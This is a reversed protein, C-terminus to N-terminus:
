YQHCGVNFCGQGALSESLFLRSTYSGHIDTHCDNCPVGSWQTGHMSNLNHRPVTHCQSCLQYHPPDYPQLLLRPHGSGHAAHCSLCGGEQTSFDLTAEHEYPFPGAMEGHCKFCMNTGNLSLERATVDLTLHCESCKVIGDNVPHRSPSAFQGEVKPHCSLCLKVEDQKLLSAAKSGHVSHCGSCNLEHRAHVNKEAMNQQHSNQHCGACVRGAARPDLDEPDTMPYKAADEEWHRRDGAHCDVCATGQGAAGPKLRHATAALGADQGEHCGLCTESDRPVDEAFLDGRLGTAAAALLIGALALPVAYRVPILRSM